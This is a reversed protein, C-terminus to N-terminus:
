LASIVQQSLISAAWHICKIFRYCDFMDICTLSKRLSVQLSKCDWKSMLKNLDREGVNCLNEPSLLFNSLFLDLARPSRKNEFCDVDTPCRTSIFDFYFNIIFLNWNTLFLLETENTLLFGQFFFTSQRELENCARERERKITSSFSSSDESSM